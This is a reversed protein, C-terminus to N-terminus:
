ERVIWMLGDAFGIPLVNFFVGVMEDTAGEGGECQELLRGAARARGNRGRCAVRGM